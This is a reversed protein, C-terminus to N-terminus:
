RSSGLPAVVTLNGVDYDHVEGTSKRVAYVGVINSCFGPCTRNSRLWIVYFDPDDHDTDHLDPFDCFWGADLPASEPLQDFKVVERKLLACADEPTPVRAKAPAAVAFTVATFYVVTSALISRKGMLAVKARGFEGLMWCGILSARRADRVGKITASITAGQPGFLTQFPDVEAAQSPRSFHGTKGSASEARAAKTPGPKRWGPGEPRHLRWVFCANLM